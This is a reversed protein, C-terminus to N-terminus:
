GLGSPSRQRARQLFARLLDGCEAALLGEGVQVRHNLLESDALRFKSRVAGFRLDRAAFILKKVRAAVLAGACMVCPELTCFVTAQELRYNTVQRAAERLALIEAHATPDNREIPGNSGRGIVEDGLVVVAGVPIEGAREAARAQELALRMFYEDRASDGVSYTEPVSPVPIRIGEQRATRRSDAPCGRSKGV